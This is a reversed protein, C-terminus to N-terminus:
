GTFSIESSFGPINGDYDVLGKEKMKKLILRVGEFKEECLRQLEPYKISGKEKLINFIFKEEESLESM